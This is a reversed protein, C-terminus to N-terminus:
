RHLFDSDVFQGPLEFDLWVLDKFQERLQTNLFLLGVGARNIFVHRDVDLIPEYLLAEDTGVNLDGDTLAIATTTRVVSLAVGCM